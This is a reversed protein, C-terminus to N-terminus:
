LAPPSAAAVGSPSTGSPITPSTEPPAGSSSNSPAQLVMTKSSLAAARCSSLSSYPGPPLRRSRYKSLVPAKGRSVPRIFSVFSEPSFVSVTAGALVSVSLRGTSAPMTRCLKEWPRVLATTTSFTFRRAMPSAGAARVSAGVSRAIDIQVRLRASNARAAKVIGECANLETLEERIAILARDEVEQVTPKEGNEIMRQKIRMRSTAAALDHATKAAM